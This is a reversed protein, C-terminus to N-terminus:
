KCEEIDVDDVYIFIEEFANSTYIDQGYIEMLRWLQLKMFGEEDIVADPDPEKLGLSVGGFHDFQHRYICKGAPSLKIKVISNLNIKKM